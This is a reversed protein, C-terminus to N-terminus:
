PYRNRSHELRSVNEGFQWTLIEFVGMLGQHLGHPPPRPLDVGRQHQFPDQL